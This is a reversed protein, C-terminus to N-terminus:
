ALVEGCARDDEDFGGGELPGGAGDEVGEALVAVEEVEGAELFVAGDGGDVLDGVVRVVDVEVEEDV